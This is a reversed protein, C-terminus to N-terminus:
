ARLTMASTRSRLPTRCSPQMATQSTSTSAWGSCPWRTGTSQLTAGRPSSGRPFSRQKPRLQPRCLMPHRGLAAAPVHGRHLVSDPYKAPRGISNLHYAFNRMHALQDGSHEEGRYQLELTTLIILREEAGILNAILEYNTQTLYLLQEPSHLHQPAGPGGPGSAVQELLARAKLAPM